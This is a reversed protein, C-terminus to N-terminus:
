HAARHKAMAADIDEPIEDVQLLTDQINALMTTKFMEVMGIMEHFELDGIIETVMRGDILSLKLYKENNM